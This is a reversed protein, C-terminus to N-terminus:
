IPARRKRRGSTQEGKPGKEQDDSGGSGFDESQVLISKCDFLNRQSSFYMFLLVHDLRGFDKCSMRLKRSQTM